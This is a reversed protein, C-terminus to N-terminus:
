AYDKRYVTVNHAVQFGLAQYLSFAADRYNDTEVYASVAGLAALRALCEGVLARAIGRGRLDDRVGLPEIQGAPRQDPGQASFWGICFGALQEDADVAVLDLQPLYAPHTLTRRRWESTMSTSQFVARHLAVYAEVEAHGALPRIRFGEPPAPQGAPPTVDRQFLVKTWSDEGVDAQSHFGAGEILQAHPHGVFANIFWCPRAFPTGQIAHARQDAWALMAPLTDAPAAPHLAYDISWFPPQLVAWARLQGSPDEWLACNAPDDFAWSCLRYPLDVVHLHESPQAQVVAAMQSWDAPGHFARQLLPM